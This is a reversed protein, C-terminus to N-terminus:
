MEIVLFTPLRVLEVGAMWEDITVENERAFDHIHQILSSILQRFRPTCKPGIADIVNKTFTPDFKHAAAGNTKPPQPRPQSATAEEKEKGSSSSGSASGGPSAKGSELEQIRAM